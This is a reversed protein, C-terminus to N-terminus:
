WQSLGKLAEGHIRAGHGIVNRRWLPSSPSFREMMWAQWNTREPHDTPCDFRLWLDVALAKVMEQIPYTGFEIVCGTLEGGIASIEHSVGDILLGSYDPLPMPDPGRRGKELNAAGWWLAARGRDPEGEKHFCLHLPQGHDGMGTHWDILAVKQNPQLWQRLLNRLTRNSWSAGTGGYNMARADDYQGAALANAVAQGGHADIIATLRTWLADLQRESPEQLCTIRRLKDAIMVPRSVPYHEVFNRNLDVNDIDGRSLHAWGWPNLGHVMVVTTGTPRDAAAEEMWNLQVASGAFAEQGHTGSISLLLRDADTEGFMAIDISLMEGDPGCADPLQHSEMHTGTRAGAELFRTRAEAYSGSFYGEAKSRTM